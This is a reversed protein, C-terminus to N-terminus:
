LTKPEFSVNTLITSDSGMQDNTLYNTKENGLSNVTRQRNQSTVALSGTLGGQHDSFDQDSNAQNGLQDITVKVVSQLGRKLDTGMFIIAMTVIGVLLIYESITQGKAM